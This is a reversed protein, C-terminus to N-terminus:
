HNSPPEPSSPLILGAYDSPDFDSAPPWPRGVTAEEEREAEAFML